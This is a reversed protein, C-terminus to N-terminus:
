VRTQDNISPFGKENDITRYQTLIFSCRSTSSSRHCYINMNVDHIIITNSELTHSLLASSTVFRLLHTDQFHTIGTTMRGGQQHLSSKMQLLTSRPIIYLKGHLSKKKFRQVDKPQIAASFPMQISPWIM